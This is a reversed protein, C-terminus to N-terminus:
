FPPFHKSGCAQKRLWDIPLMEPSDKLKCWYMALLCLIQVNLKMAQVSPKGVTNPCPWATLQGTERARQRISQCDEMLEAPEVDAMPLSASRLKFLFIEIDLDLTSALFDLSTACSCFCGRSLRKTGLQGLREDDGQDARSADTGAGCTGALEVSRNPPAFFSSRSPACSPVVVPSPLTRSITVHGAPCSLM